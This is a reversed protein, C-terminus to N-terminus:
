KTASIRDRDAISKAKSNAVCTAASHEAGSEDRIRGVVMLLGQYKILDVLQTTCFVRQWAETVVLNHDRTKTDGEHRLTAKHAM